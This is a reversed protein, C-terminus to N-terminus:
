VEARRSPVRRLTELSVSLLGKFMYFFARLMTFSSRGTAWRRMTVPLEQVDFGARHLIVIAEVESYDFPYDVAVYQIVARNVAMLGSTTDTFRKGTLWSVLTAFLTIGISRTLTNRYERSQAYRSGVIMDAQGAAVLLVIRALDRADHQGDGDLRALVDYGGRQAFLFGAEVAGGIGYASPVRIAHVNARLACEFTQDKSYGDIVLIDAGPLHERVQAIVGGISAEENYALIMVLTRMAVEEGVSNDM